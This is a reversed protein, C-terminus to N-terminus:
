KSFVQTVKETFLAKLSKTDLKINAIVDGNEQEKQSVIMKNDELNKFVHKGVKMYFILLDRLPTEIVVALVDSKVPAITVDHVLWYFGAKTQRTEATRVDVKIKKEVLLDYEMAISVDRVSFGNRWLQQKVLIVDARTEISM